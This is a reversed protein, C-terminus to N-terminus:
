ILHSLVLCLMAAAMMGCGFLAKSKMESIQELNKREEESFETGATKARLVIKRRQWTMTGYIFAGVAVWFVFLVV